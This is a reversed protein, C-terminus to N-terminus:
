FNFKILKKLFWGIDALYNWLVWLPWLIGDTKKQKPLYGFDKLCKMAICNFRAHMPRKWHAWRELPNFDSLKEVTEWSVKGRDNKSIESSGRVPLNRAADFNYNTIDVGLFEFIRDLESELKNMLDEYRVILYRYESDKNAQDFELIKEASNKWKRIAKTTRWKWTKIGSEVVARGDRVLILLHSNPFYKFFFSLNGVGPTKTIPRKNFGTQLNLFLQLGYGISWCLSDILGKDVKGHIKWEEQLADTYKILFNGKNLFHDEDIPSPVVACDPLLDLLDRLFNTGCREMIGIIFIPTNRLVSNTQLYEQITSIKKNVM